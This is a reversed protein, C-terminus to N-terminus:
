ADSMSSYMSVSSKNSPKSVCCCACYEYTNDKNGPQISSMRRDQFVVSFKPFYWNTAIVIRCLYFFAIYMCFRNVIYSVLM